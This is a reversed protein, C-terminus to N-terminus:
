RTKLTELFDAYRSIVFNYNVQSLYDEIYSKKGSPMYDAVYSHEWMDLMLIPFTNNLQGIHQEDAWSLLLSGDASNSSCDYSLVAWGIGRTMALEKFRAWFNDLSGFSKVIQISLASDLDLKSSGGALSEFYLEHNRIGCFEFSFRRQLETRIFADEIPLSSLKEQILNAHKIYGEYLKIHEDIAKKSLGKLEPITFTKATYM